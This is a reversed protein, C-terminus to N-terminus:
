IISMKVPRGRTAEPDTLSQAVDALVSTAIDFERPAEDRFLSSDPWLVVVRDAGLSRIGEWLFDALAEWSRSSM